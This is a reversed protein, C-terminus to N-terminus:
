RVRAPPVFEKGSAGRKIRSTNWLLNGICYSITRTRVRPLAKKRIAKPQHSSQRSSRPRGVLVFCRVKQRFRFVCCIMRRSSYVTCGYGACPKLVQPQISNQALGLNEVRVTRTRMHGHSCAHRRCAAPPPEHMCAHMAADCSPM